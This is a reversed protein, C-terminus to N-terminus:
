PNERGSTVARIKMILIISSLALTLGNALVVPVQAECLGWVLWLAVGLVFLSYMTLSISSTDRTKLTKLVQPIFCLSTLLAATLGLFDLPTM